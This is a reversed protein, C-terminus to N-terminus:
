LFQVMIFSLTKELMMYESSNTNTTTTTTTTTKYVFYYFFVFLNQCIWAKNNPSAEPSVYTSRKELWTYIQNYTRTM